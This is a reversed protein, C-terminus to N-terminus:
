CFPTCFNPDSWNTGTNPPVSYWGIHNPDSVDTLRIGTAAGLELRTNSTRGYEENCLV